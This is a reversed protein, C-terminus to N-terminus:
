KLLTQNITIDSNNILEDVYQLYLNYKKEANLNKQSLKSTFKNFLKNELMFYQMAKIGYKESYEDMSLGLSKVFSAYSDKATQASQKELPSGHKILNDIIKNNNALANKAEKLSVDIGEKNCNNIIVQQRIIGQLFEKDSKKSTKEKIATKTRISYSNQTKSFNEDIIRKNLFDSYPINIGDVIAVISDNSEDLINTKIISKSVKTNASSYQTFSFIFTLNLVISFLKKNM